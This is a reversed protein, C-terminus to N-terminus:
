PIVRVSDTGMIHQVTSGYSGHAMLTAATSSTTLNLDQTNFFFVLDVQGDRNVDELAWRVAMAGTCSDTMDTNADSLHAMEPTFQSADFNNTTLVAVPVLGNSSLQITNPYSGPKIDITVPIPTPCTMKKAYATSRGTFTLVGLLLVITLIHLRTKKM